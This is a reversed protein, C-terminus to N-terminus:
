KRFWLQGIFIEVWISIEFDVHRIKAFDNKYHFRTNMMSKERKRVIGM